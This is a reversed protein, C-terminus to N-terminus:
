CEKSIWKGGNHYIKFREDGKFIGDTQVVYAFKSVERSTNWFKGKDDDTMQRKEFLKLWTLKHCHHSVKESIM